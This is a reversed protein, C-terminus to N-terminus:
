FSELVVKLRAESEAQNFADAAAHLDAVQRSFVVWELMVEDKKEMGALQDNSILESTAGYLRMDEDHILSLQRGVVHSTLAEVVQVLSAWAKILPSPTAAAPATAAAAGHAPGTALLALGLLGARAAASCRRM